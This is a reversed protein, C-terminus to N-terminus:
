GLLQDASKRNLSQINPETSKAQECQERGGGEGAM